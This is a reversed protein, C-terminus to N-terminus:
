KTMNAQVRKRVEEEDTGAPKTTGGRCARVLVPVANCACSAACYPASHSRAVCVCVCVCVCVYVCVCVCVCVSVYVCVRM